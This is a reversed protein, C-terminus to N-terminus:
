YLLAMLQVTLCRGIINYFPIRRRGKGGKKILNHAKCNVLWILYRLVKKIWM